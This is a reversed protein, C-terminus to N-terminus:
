LIIIIIINYNNIYCNSMDHTEVQWRISDWGCIQYLILMHTNVCMHYLILM